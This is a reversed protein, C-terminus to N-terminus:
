KVKEDALELIKEYNDYLQYSALILERSKDFRLMSPIVLPNELRVRDLADADKLIKFQRECKEMNQVGYEKAVDYFYKDDLSHCTVVAKLLKLEEPNLNLNLDDLMEASRRGHDDDTLDDKRGIDHYFAGYLAIRVEQNSLYMDDVLFFAFLAVRENHNLGHCDSKYIYEEKVETLYKSFLNFRSSERIEKVFDRAHISKVGRLRLDKEQRKYFNRKKGFYDMGHVTYNKSLLVTLWNSIM